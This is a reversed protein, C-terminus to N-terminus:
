SLAMVPPNQRNNSGDLRRPLAVEDFLPARTSQEAKQIRPLLLAMSAALTLLVHHGRQSSQIDNLKKLGCDVHSLLREHVALAWDSRECSIPGQQCRCAIRSHKVGRQIGSNVIDMCAMRTMLVAFTTLVLIQWCECRRSDSPTAPSLAACLRCRSENWYNRSVRTTGSSQLALPGDDERKGTRRLRM